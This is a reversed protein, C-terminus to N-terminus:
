TLVKTLNPSSSEVGPEQSLGKGEAPHQRFGTDVSGGAAAWAWAWLVSGLSTRVTLSCHFFNCPTKQFAGPRTM